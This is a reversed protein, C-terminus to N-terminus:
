IPLISSKAFNVRLSSADGFINLITKTTNIDAPTPPVFMVVDDAYLSTCMRCTHLRFDSFAHTNEAHVMLGILYDMVLMFTLLSLPDGQCTSPKMWAELVMDTFGEM